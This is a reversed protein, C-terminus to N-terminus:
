AALNFWTRYIAVARELGMSVNLASLFEHAGFM